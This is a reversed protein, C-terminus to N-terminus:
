LIENKTSKVTNTYGTIVLISGFLCSLSGLILWLSKMFGYHDTIAKYKLHELSDKQATKVVDPYQTYFNVYNEISGEVNCPVNKRRPMCNAIEAKIMVEVESYTPYKNDFRRIAFQYDINKIESEHYADWPKTLGFALLALGIVIMTENIYRM